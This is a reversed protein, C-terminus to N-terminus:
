KVNDKFLDSFSSGLQELDHEFERKFSRNKETVTKDFRKMDEEFELNRQVLKEKMLQIDNKSKDYDARLKQKDKAAAKNIRDDLKKLDNELSTVTSDAKNKFADWDAMEQAQAEDNEKSLAHKLEEQAIDVNDEAAQVEKSPENCSVALSALLFAYMITKKM